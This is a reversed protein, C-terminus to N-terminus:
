NVDCVGTKKNRSCECNLRYATVKSSNEFVPASMIVIENKPVYGYQTNVTYKDDGQFITATLCYIASNTGNHVKFVMSNKSWEQQIKLQDFENASFASFERKPKILDFSNAHWSFLCVLLCLIKTLRNLM